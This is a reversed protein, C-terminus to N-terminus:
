RSRTERRREEARSGSLLNFMAYNGEHCAYEYLAYSDDRTIPLRVTWPTAWTKPDVVTLRYDLTNAGALTFREILVGESSLPQRNIMSEPRLNRTEVVLTDAEWHGVSNGMWAKVAGSVNTRGDTPIVRTEHIMENQFALWGPGQIIRSGSNYIAPQILGPRRSHHLPRLQQPRDDM